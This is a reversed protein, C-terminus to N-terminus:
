VLQMKKVNVIVIRVTIIIIWCRERAPMDEIKKEFAFSMKIEISLIVSFYQLYHHHWCLLSPPPGGDLYSAKKFSCSVTWVQFDYVYLSWLHFFSERDWGTWQGPLNFQDRKEKLTLELSGCRFTRKGSKIWFVPDTTNCYFGTWPLEAAGKKNGINNSNYNSKRM